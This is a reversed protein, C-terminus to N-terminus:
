NKFLLLISTVQFLFLKSKEDSVHLAYSLLLLLTIISM